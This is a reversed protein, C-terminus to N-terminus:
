LKQVDVFPEEYDLWGDDYREIIREIFDRIVPPGSDRKPKNEEYLGLHDLIKNIIKREHIFNMLKM